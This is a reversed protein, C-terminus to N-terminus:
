RVHDRCGDSGARRPAPRAAPPQAQRPLAAPRGDGARRLLGQHVVGRPGNLDAEQPIVSGDLDIGFRPRGHEVRVTDAVTESVPVAGAAELAQALAGTRAADCLLDVGLDTRIARAPIGGVEILAHAHEAAGLTARDVGAIAASRPGLLSLLGSELTRKHLTVDYGVSFRRIVNFLEQLTVRETDLALEDGTDLIRLDGLMKGKPTLFTAYCGTGPTLSAVDNSVQGQLFTKVDSGTLALKGRESRDLLGCGETVARYEADSVTPSRM